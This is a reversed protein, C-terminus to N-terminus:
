PAPTLLCGARQGLHGLGALDGAGYESPHVQPLLVPYMVQAADTTHGLGVLHGLEHLLLDGLTSGSGLSALLTTTDDANIVAQGTVYVKNQGPAQVWSAGGEGIVSGGSPLLSSQSSTSWAILVPAWNPGYRSPQYAPRNAAPVENTPGDDVFSLGTAASVQSLVGQILSAANGPGQALNTVYHIPACPNFRVPSGDSNTELFTYSGSGVAPIIAVPSSRVGGTGLTANGGDAAVIVLNATSGLAAAARIPANLLGAASRLVPAPGYNYVQAGSTTVWYGGASNPTIAVVSGPPASGAASGYFPLGFSFVGGDSAILWYGTGDHAAAMGVIPENLPIGGTSGYFSADGFSFIGGDSAVLWYGLGDPTPSMGVIPQNLRIGGTSGYFAADGFSFIGGDSAVMWYGGGDSTPAAGVIPQNLPTGALGGHFTADGFTFTAGDSGFEWWGQGSRTGAAAVIAGGDGSTSSHVTLGSPTHQVPPSSVQPRALESAVAALNAGLLMAVLAATVVWTSPRDLAKLFRSLRPREILGAM